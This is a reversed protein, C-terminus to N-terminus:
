YQERVIIGCRFFSRVVTRDVLQFCQSKISVLSGAGIISLMGILYWSTWKFPVNQGGALGDKLRSSGPGSASAAHCLSSILDGSTKGM